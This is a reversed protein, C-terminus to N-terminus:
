NSSWARSSWAGSSSGSPDRASGDTPNNNNWANNPEIYYSPPSSSWASSSLGSPNSNPGGMGNNNEGFTHANTPEIYLHVPASSWGWSGSPGGTSGGIPNNGFTNINPEIYNSSHTTNLFSQNGWAIDLPNRPTQQAHFGQSYNEILVQQNQQVINNQGVDHPPELPKISLNQIDMRVFKLPPQNHNPPPRTLNLRGTENIIGGASTMSSSLPPPPPASSVIAPSSDRSRNVRREEGNSSIDRVQGGHTWLKKCSKCRYRPQSTKNNNFYAFKTEESDCRPCRLNQEMESSPNAM